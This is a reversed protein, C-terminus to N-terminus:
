EKIRLHRKYILAVLQGREAGKLGTAREAIEAKAQAIRGRLPNRQGPAPKWQPSSAEVKEITERTQGTIENLLTIKDDDNM